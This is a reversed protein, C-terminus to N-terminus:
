ARDHAARGGDDPRPEGAVSALAHVGAHHGAGALYVRAPVAPFACGRPGPALRAGAEGAVLGASQLAVEDRGRLSRVPERRRGEVRAGDRHRTGGPYGFQRHRIPELLKPSNATGRAVIVGRNAWAEDMMGNRRFRIGVCRKGDLILSTAEAGSLVTLNARNRAPKLYQTATSQRLGRHVTQQAMAVGEQTAGSYDRNFPIGLSMASQIFLDYFPTIKTAEVVKVPGNRGRHEDSGVDTSEIKKLFPLIDDYSWGPCGMQAWTDYDIQQGRNYMTGNISSTGGLMKGRPGYIPRNGHSENPESYYRWNVVPNDILFATGAAPRSWIYDAGNEGAELCLVTYKGNESLRAANVGGASGSGVVIVDYTNAAM